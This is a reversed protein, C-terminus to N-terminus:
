RRAGRARRDFNGALLSRRSRIGWFGFCGLVLSQYHRDTRALRYSLALCAGLTAAFAIMSVAILGLFVATLFAVMATVVSLVMLMPPLGFVKFPPQTHTLVVSRAKM